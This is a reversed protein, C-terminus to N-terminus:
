KKVLYPAIIAAVKQLTKEFLNLEKTIFQLEKTIALNVFFRIVNIDVNKVKYKKEDSNIHGDPNNQKLLRSLQNFLNATQFFQNPTISYSGSQVIKVSHGPPIQPLNDRSEQERAISIGKLVERIDKCSQFSPFPEKKLSQTDIEGM